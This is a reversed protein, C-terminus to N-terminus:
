FKSTITPEMELSQFELIIQLQVRHLHTHFLVFVRFKINLRSRTQSIQLNSNFLLQELSM